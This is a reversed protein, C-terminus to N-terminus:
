FDTGIIGSPKPLLVFGDFDIMETIFFRKRPDESKLFYDM